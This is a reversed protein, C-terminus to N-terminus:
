GIRELVVKGSSPFLIVTPYPGLLIGLHTSTPYTVPDTVAGTAINYRGVCGKGSCASADPESLDMPGAPTDVAHNSGAVGPANDQPGSLTTANYTQSTSDLGQGANHIVLLQSGLVSIAQVAAPGSLQQNVTQNTAAELHTGNPNVRVIMAGGSEVYYLGLPGAAVNEVNATDTGVTKVAGSGPIIEVVQGSGTLSGLVAWLKGDSTAMLRVPLSLNVTRAISGTARAYEVIQKGGGVYFYTADAALATVPISPHEAVQVPGDGDVVYVATGAPASPTGGQQSTFAAFVSGDPAETAIATM